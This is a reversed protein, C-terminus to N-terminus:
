LNNFSACSTLMSSGSLEIAADASCVSPDLLSAIVTLLLSPTCVRIPIVQNVAALAALAVPFAKLPLAPNGVLLM